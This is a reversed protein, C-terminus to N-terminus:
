YEKPFCLFHKIVTKSLVSINLMDSAKAIDIIKGSNYQINIKDDKASYANNTIQGTFVFYEALNDDIKYRAKIKNKIASIIEESFPMKQIEIKYLKRNIFNKCLTSLVIDKHNAWIKISTFIDNDDLQSYLDLITNNEFVYDKKTFDSTKVNNYLFYKLSPTAYLNLDVNAIEKARKLIKVLMQEAGLVTKHLYVQWYMLRRAILFNEISYIGKSEVVLEDNVINLMHIIRDSAIVGESVGTFYSDRKLYDLRDMDLQSSVLHHLFKKYYKSEFIKIALEFQNDFIENLRIMFIASLQEHTINEVISSELAHSFPGHGIDHLLIAIVVAKAEEDSIDHGKSKLVDIALNMLYASGIAHQFRTHTGGPYVLYTLGLQKIQRLRQFYPHEIIEYAIGTPLNILGYIPDNIIKRKNLSIKNM